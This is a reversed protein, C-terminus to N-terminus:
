FCSFKRITGRVIRAMLPSRGGTLALMWLTKAALWIIKGLCLPSQSPSPFITPLQLHYVKDAAFWLRLLCYVVAVVLAVVAAASDVWFTLFPLAIYDLRRSSFFKQATAMKISHLICFQLFALALTPRSASARCLTSFISHNRLNQQLLSAIALFISSAQTSCVWKHITHYETTYKHIIYIKIIIPYTILSKIYFVPVPLNIDVSQENNEASYRAWRKIYYIEM